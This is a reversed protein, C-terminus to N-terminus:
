IAMQKKILQATSRPALTSLLAHERRGIGVGRETVSDEKPRVITPPRDLRPGRQKRASTDRSGAPLMPLILQASLAIDTSCAGTKHGSLAMAIRGPIGARVMNRVATRRLYHVLVM